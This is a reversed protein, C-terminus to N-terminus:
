NSIDIDQTLGEIILGSCYNVNNVDDDEFFIQTMGSPISIKHKAFNTILTFYADSYNYESIDKALSEALLFRDEMNLQKGLVVGLQKYLDLAM